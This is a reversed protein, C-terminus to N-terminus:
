SSVLSHKLCTERMLKFLLVALDNGFHDPLSGSLKLSENRREASAKLSSLSPSQDTVQGEATLPGRTGLWVMGVWMPPPGDM